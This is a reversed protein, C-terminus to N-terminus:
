RGLAKCSSEFRQFIILFFCKKQTKSQSDGQNAKKSIANFVSQKIDTTTVQNLSLSGVHLEEFL